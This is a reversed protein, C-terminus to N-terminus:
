RQGIHNVNDKKNDQNPSQINDAKYLKRHAGKSITEKFKRHVGM